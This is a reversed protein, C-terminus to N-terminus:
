HGILVGDNGKTANGGDTPATQFTGEKGALGGSGRTEARGSAALGSSKRKPFDVHISVFFHLFFYRFNQLGFRHNKKRYHKGYFTRVCTMEGSPQGPEVGEVWESFNPGSM